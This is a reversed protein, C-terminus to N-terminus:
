SKNYFSLFLRKAARSLGESLTKETRFFRTDNGEETFYGTIWLTAEIGDGIQPIFDKLVHNAAYINIFLSDNDCAHGFDTKLITILEGFIKTKSIEKIQGIGHFESVYDSPMMMRTLNKDIYIKEPKYDKATKNPNESLFKQLNEEFVPGENIEYSTEQLGNLNLALAALCINQPKNFEFNQSDFAFFPNHFNLLYGENITVQASMEGEAEVNWRYMDKLIMKNEAGKFVPYGTAFVNQGDEKITINVFAIPSSEKERYIYGTLYQNTFTQSFIPTGKHIGYTIAKSVLKSTNPSLAEWVNGYFEFHKGIFYSDETM